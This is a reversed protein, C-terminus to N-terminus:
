KWAPLTLWGSCDERQAHIFIEIGFLQLEYFLDVWCCDSLHLLLLISFVKGIEDKWKVKETADQQKVLILLFPHQMVLWM